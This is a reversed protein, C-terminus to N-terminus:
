LPGFEHVPSPYSTFNNLNEQISTQTNTNPAIIVSQQQREGERITANGQELRDAINRELRAISLNAEEDRATIRAMARQNIEAMSGFIKGGQFLDISFKKGFLEREISIKPLEFSLLGTIFSILKDPINTILNSFEIFRIRFRDLSNGIRDGINGFFDSVNEIKDNFWDGAATWADRFKGPLTYEFFHVIPALGEELWTAFRDVGPILDRVWYGIDVLFRVFMDAILDASALIGQVWKGDSFMGLIDSFQSIDIVLNEVLATVLNEMGPVFSNNWYDKAWALSAAVAETASMDVGGILSAIKDLAPMFKENWVEKLGQVASIFAENEGIDKLSAYLLALTAIIPSGRMVLKAILKLPRFIYKTMRTIISGITIGAFSGGFVSGLSATSLAGMLDSMPNSGSSKKPRSKREKRAEADNLRDRDSKADLNDILNVMVNHLDEIATTTNEDADRNRQLEAIVDSLTAEAM